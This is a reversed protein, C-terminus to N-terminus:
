SVKGRPHRTILYIMAAPTEALPYTRDVVPTVSADEVLAAPEFLDARTVKKVFQKVDRRRLVLRAAFGAVILSLDQASRDVIAPM